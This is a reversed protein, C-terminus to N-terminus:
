MFDIFWLVINVQNQLVQVSPLKELANLLVPGIVLFVGRDDHAADQFGEHRHVALLYDMSVELRLVEEELLYSWTYFTLPVLVNGREFDYVEPEWGEDLIINWKGHSATWRPVNSRFDEVVETIACFGINEACADDEIDQLDV